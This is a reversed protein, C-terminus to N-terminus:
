VILASLQASVQLAVIKHKLHALHQIFQISTMKVITHQSLANIFNGGVSQLTLCATLSYSYLLHDAKLHTLYLYNIFLM